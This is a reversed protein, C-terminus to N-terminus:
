LGIAVFSPSLCATVFTSRLANTASAGQGLAADYHGRLLATAQPARADSAPLAMLESVFDAIAADPESSSWQKVGAVQKAPPVDIVEVAV